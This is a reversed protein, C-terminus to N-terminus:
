ETVDSKGYFATYDILQFLTNIFMSWFATSCYSRLNLNINGEKVERCKSVCRLALGNKWLFCYSFSIFFNPGLVRFKYNLIGCCSKQM